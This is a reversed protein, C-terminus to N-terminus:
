RDDVCEAVMQRWELPRKTSVIMGVSFIIHLKELDGYNVPPVLRRERLSSHMASAERIRARRSPKLSM